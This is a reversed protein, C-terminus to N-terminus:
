FRVHRRLNTIDLIRGGGFGSMDSRRLSIARPSVQIADAPAVVEPLKAFNAAM